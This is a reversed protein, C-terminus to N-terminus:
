PVVDLRQLRQRSKEAAPRTASGRLLCVDLGVVSMAGSLLEAVCLGRVAAHLDASLLVLYLAAQYRWAAGAGQLLAADRSLRRGSAGRAGIRRRDLLGHPRGVGPLIGSGLDAVAGVDRLLEPFRDPSGDRWLSASLVSAAGHPRASGTGSLAASRCQTAAPQDDVHTGTQNDRCAHHPAFELVPKVLLRNKVFSLKRGFM